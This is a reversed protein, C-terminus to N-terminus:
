YLLWYQSGSVGGGCRQLQYPPARPITQTDSAARAELDRLLHAHSTHHIIGPLGIKKEESM